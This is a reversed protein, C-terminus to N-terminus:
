KETGGKRVMIMQPTIQIVTGDISAHVRAGLSGEPIEGVVQGLKVVEGIKVVPVAAAGVHQQLRLKVEEAEFIRIALPAEQYWSGLGLRDMLRASPILRHKAMPDLNGLEGQYKIDKARLEAKLARNVRLPSIGVPCAYAECVGCESCTLASTLKSLNGLNRYNVARILLHPSLEHGIMHRPCLETCFCCQECVTKAIRLVQELSMRKRQILLHDTPLAILGGTVKTVPLSLDTLLMGMVPGGVIYSLDEDRGGGALKMVEQLSTGIPVTVTTPNKVAGTVTLTRVTVPEGDVARAVNIITQVNNVVVGINLPIGGPPVRRGTTLWIMIVEDGAPYIDPLIAIRIKDTLYPELATLATKYKAKLAIIGKQAGTAEMALKLGKIVLESHRAALQQDTKLLPECEAGNVVVIEVQASLKVHTPFGAGGAGVVGAERVKMSIEKM